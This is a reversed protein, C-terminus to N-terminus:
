EDHSENPESDEPEINEPEAPATTDAPEAHEETDFVTPAFDSRDAQVPQAFPQTKEISRITFYEIISYCILFFFGISTFSIEIIVSFDYWSLYNHSLMIGIPVYFLCLEILHTNIWALQKSSKVFQSCITLLMSLCVITLPILWHTIGEHLMLMGLLIFLFLLVVASIIANRRFVSKNSKLQMVNSIYFIILALVFLLILTLVTLVILLIVFFRYFIKSRLRSNLSAVISFFILFLIIILYIYEISNSQQYIRMNSYYNFVSFLLSIIISGCCIIYITTFKRRNHINEQLATKFKDENTNQM